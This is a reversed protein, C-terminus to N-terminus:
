HGYLIGDVYNIYKEKLLESLNTLSEDDLGVIEEGYKVYLDVRKIGQKIHDSLTEFYDDFVEVNMSKYFKGTDYLTYPTGAVKQPNIQETKISYLGIIDGNGDLGKQLQDHQIFYIIKQRTDLDLSQYWADVVSLQQIRTLMQGVPTNLVDVM